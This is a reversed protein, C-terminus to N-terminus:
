GAIAIAGCPPPYAAVPIQQLHEDWVREVKWCLMVLTLLLTAVLLEGAVGCLLGCVRDGFLM